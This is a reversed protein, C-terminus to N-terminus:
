GGLRQLASRAEVIEPLDSDGRRTTAGFSRYYSLAKGADGRQDHLRALVLLNHTRNYDGELSGELYRTAEALNGEAMELEGLSTRALSGSFGSTLGALPVLLRRAETREGQALAIAAEVV